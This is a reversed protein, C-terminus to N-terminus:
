PGLTRTLEPALDDLANALYRVVNQPKQWGPASDRPWVNRWGVRARAILRKRALWRLREAALTNISRRAFLPDPTLGAAAVAAHARKLWAVFEDSSFYPPGGTLFHAILHSPTVIYLRLIARRLAAAFAAPAAADLGRLPEGVRIVARLRGAALADYSLALPLLPPPRTALRYVTHVGTRVRGFRGDLSTLGEPSFFLMRGEDLLKAFGQLQSAITARFAPTLQRFTQRGLRRLGWSSPRRLRRRNLEGLRSPLAGCIAALERRGRANFLAAPDADQQGAALLADVTEGLGFERIRRMPWARAAHFFGSLRILGLLQPLPTWAPFYEALFGPRFLDERAAFFPLPWRFRPGHRQCLSTTFIPVDSDRQHNAVIVMGPELCYNDPWLHEKRYAARVSLDFGLEILWTLRPHPDLAADPIWNFAM